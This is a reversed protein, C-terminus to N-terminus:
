DNSVDLTFNSDPGSVVLGDESTITFGDGKNYSISDVNEIQFGSTGLGGTVSTSREEVAKARAM